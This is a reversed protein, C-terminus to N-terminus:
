ELVTPRRVMKDALANACAMVANYSSSVFSVEVTERGDDKLAEVSVCVTRGDPLLQKSTVVNHSGSDLLGERNGLLAQLFGVLFSTVDHALSSSRPGIFRLIDGKDYSLCMSQEPTSELKWIGQLHINPLPSTSHTCSTYNSPVPRFFDFISLVKSYIVGSTAITRCFIEANTTCFHVACTLLLPEYVFQVPVEIYFYSVSNPLLGTLPSSLFQGRESLPPNVAFIDESYIPITHLREADPVVSVLLSWGCGLPSVGCYELVVKVRVSNSVGGDMAVVQRVLFLLNTRSTQLEKFVHLATNVESISSEAEQVKSMVDECQFELNRLRSLNSHFDDSMQSASTKGTDNDVSPLLSFLGGDGTLALVCEKTGCVPSIKVVSPFDVDTGQFTKSLAELAKGEKQCGLSDMLTATNVFRVCQPGSLCLTSTNPQCVSLVPFGSHLLEFHPSSSHVREETCALMKGSRGVVLLGNCIASNPHSSFLCLGAVFQEVSCLPGMFSGGVSSRINALPTYMINGNPFGVLFLPVKILSLEPPFLQTYFIKSVVSMEACGSIIEGEEHCVVLTPLPCLVYSMELTRVNCKPIPISHSTLFSIDPPTLDENAKYVHLIVSGNRNENQLQFLFMNGIQVVSLVSLCNSCHFWLKSVSKYEVVSGEFQSGASEYQSLSSLRREDNTTQDKQDEDLLSVFISSNTAQSQLPFQSSPLVDMEECMDDDEDSDLLSVVDNELSSQQKKRKQEEPPAQSCILFPIFM